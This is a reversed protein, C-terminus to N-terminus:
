HNLYHYKLRIITKMKLTNKNHNGKGNIVRVNELTFIYDINKVFHKKICEFLHTRYNCKKRDGKYGVIEIIDDSLEFWEDDELSNLACWFSSDFFQSPDFNTIEFFECLTLSLKNQHIILEHFKYTLTDQKTEEM